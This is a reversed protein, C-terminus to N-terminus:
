ISKEHDAAEVPTEDTDSLIHAVVQIDHVEEEAGPRCNLRKHVQKDTDRRDDRHERM